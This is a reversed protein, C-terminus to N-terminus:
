QSERTELWSMAANLAQDYADHQLYAAWADRPKASDAEALWERREAETLGNWWDIGAQPDADADAPFVHRGASTRKLSVPM